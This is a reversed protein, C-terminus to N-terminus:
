GSYGPTLSPGQAATHGKMFLPCACFRNPHVLNRVLFVRRGSRDGFVRVIRVRGAISLGADLQTVSREDPACAQAVVIVDTGPKQPHVESPYKLSSQGPEGWYTDVMTIPQQEPAIRLEPELEYTAKVVVCLIDAGSHNYM